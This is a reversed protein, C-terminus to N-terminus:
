SSFNTSYNVTRTSNSGTTNDLTYLTVDYRISTKLTTTSSNFTVGSNTKILNKTYSKPSYKWTMNNTGVGGTPKTINVSAITNFTFSVTWPFSLSISTSYSSRIDPWYDSVTGNTISIKPQVSVIKYTKYATSSTPTVEVVIDQGGYKSTSSGYLVGSVGVTAETYTVATSYSDKNNWTLARSQNTLSDELTLVKNSVADFMQSDDVGKEKYWSVVDDGNNYILYGMFELSSKECLIETKADVDLEFSNILQNFELNETKVFVPKDFTGSLTAAECLTNENAIIYDSTELMSNNKTLDVIQLDDITKKKAMCPIISFVMCMSLFFSTIIKKM